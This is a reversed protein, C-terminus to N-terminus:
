LELVNIHNQSEEQLWFGEIRVRECVAGWGKKNTDSQIIVAPNPNILAKRNWVEVQNVWWNVEKIAQDSLMVITNFGGGMKLGHEERIALPSLAFSGTIDSSNVCNYKRDTRVSFTDVSSPKSYSSSEAGRNKKIKQKPLSLTMDIANVTFGLFEM